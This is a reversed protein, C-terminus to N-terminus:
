LIADDSLSKVAREVLRRQDKSLGSPLDDIAFWEAHKIEFSSPKPTGTIRTLYYIEVQKPRGLTRLFLLKASEVEVGIEEQLERRLAAEPQERNDIFGGPIGWTCDPRFVHDLLLIRQQDDFIIAGVTVTFRRQGLRVLRRRIAGPLHRWISGLFPILM